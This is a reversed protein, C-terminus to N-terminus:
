SDDEVLEDFDGELDSEVHMASEEAPLDDGEGYQPVYDGYASDANDGENDPAGYASIPDPEEQMIRQDISEPEGVDGSMLAESGRPQMDPPTVPLDDGEDSSIRVERDAESTGADIDEIAETERFRNEESM